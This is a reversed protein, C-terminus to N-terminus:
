TVEEVTAKGGSLPAHCNPCRRIEPEPEPKERKPGAYSLRGEQDTILWQKGAWAFRVGCTRCVRERPVEATAM